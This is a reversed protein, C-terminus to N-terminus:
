APSCGFYALAEAYAEDTVIEDDDWWTYTNGPGAALVRLPWDQRDMDGLAYVRMHEPIATYAAHLAARNEETQDALFVDVAARCRATSDPRGSLQDVTDHVEALLADATVWRQPEAFTWDGLHLASAEAGDPVVTAVKGSALKEAFEDLTCLGWCDVMGDAYIFLDTLFHRDGNRIFVHRWTGEVREGDAERWTRRKAM